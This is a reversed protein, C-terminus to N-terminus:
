VIILAYVTDGGYTQFNLTFQTVSSGVPFWNLGKVQPGGNYFVMVVPGAATYVTNAVQPPAPNCAAYALPPAYVPYPPPNFPTAESLDIDQTGSFQYCATQIRNGEGDLVTIQYFTEGLPEIVDNGWLEVSIEAGTSLEEIKKKAITSTGAIQPLTLGYNCLVIQLKAPNATTGAAEGTIDQLTATLTIGPTAM